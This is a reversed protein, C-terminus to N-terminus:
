QAPHRVVTPPAESRRLRDLGPRNGCPPGSVMVSAWRSSPRSCAPANGATNPGGPILAWVQLGGTRAKVPKGRLQALGRFLQRFAREIQRDIGHSRGDTLHRQKTPM